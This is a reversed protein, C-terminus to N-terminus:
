ILLNLDNLSIGTKEEFYRVQVLLKDLELRLRPLADLNPQITQSLTLPADTTPIAMVPFVTSATTISGIKHVRGFPIETGKEQKWIQRPSSTARQILEQVLEIKRVLMEYQHWEENSLNRAMFQKKDSLEIYKKEAEKMGFIRYYIDKAGRQNWAVHQMETIFNDFNSAHQKHIVSLNGKWLNKTNKTYGINLLDEVRYRGLHQTRAGPTLVGKPRPQLAGPEIFRKLQQSYPKNKRFHTKIPLKGLFGPFPVIHREINPIKMEPESAYRSPLNIGEFSLASPITLEYLNEGVENTPVYPSSIKHPRALIYFPVDDFEFHPDHLDNITKKLINQAANYLSDRDQQTTGRIDSVRKAAALALEPPITKDQSLKELESRQIDLKEVAAPREKKLAQRFSTSIDVRQHSTGIQRYTAPSKLKLGSFRKSLVETDIFRRLGPVRKKWFELIIKTLQEISFKDLFGPQQKDIDELASTIILRDATTMQVSFRSPDFSQIKNLIINVLNRWGVYSFSRKQGTSTTISIPKLIPGLYNRAFNASQQRQRKNRDGRGELLRQATEILFYVDM